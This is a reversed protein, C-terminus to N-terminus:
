CGAFLGLPFLALHLGACRFLTRRIARGLPGLWWLAFLSRGM